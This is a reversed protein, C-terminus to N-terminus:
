ALAAPLDAQPKHLWTCDAQEAGAAHKRLCRVRQPHLAWREPQPRCRWGRRVPLGQVASAPLAKHRHDSWVQRWRRAGPQGNWLGLMHRAVHSWPVGSLGTMYAVMQDEIHERWADSPEIAPGGGGLFRRDWDAMLCPDHYAQRGVMVGDVQALQEDVLANDAIGGNLVITLAPFERKLQHVM